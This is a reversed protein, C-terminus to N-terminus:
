TEVEPRKLVTPVFYHTLLRKQYFFTQFEFVKDFTNVLFVSLVLQCAEEIRLLLVM